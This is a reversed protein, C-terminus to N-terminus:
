KMSLKGAFHKGSKLIYIYKYKGTPKTVADSYFSNCTDSVAVVSLTYTEACQLDHFDCETSHTACSATFGGEGTLTANFSVDCTPCPAEWTAHLTNTSCVM